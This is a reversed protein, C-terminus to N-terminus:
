LGGVVKRGFKKAGLAGGEKMQRHQSAQYPDLVLTVGVGKKAARELKKIQERSLNLINESGQKVRVGRGSILNKMQNDSLKGVKTPYYM